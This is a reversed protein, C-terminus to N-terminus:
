KATAVWADYHRELAALLEVLLEIRNVPAGTEIL